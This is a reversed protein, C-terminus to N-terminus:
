RQARAPWREQLDRYIQRCIDRVSPAADPLSKTLCSEIIDLGGSKELAPNNGHTQLITKMYVAAFQRTQTNKDNLMDSLFKLTKHRLPTSALYITTSDMSKTAIIKRTSNACKLLTLLLNENTYSDLHYGICLSIDAVLALTEMALTTRLSNVQLNCQHTHSGPVVFEGRYIVYPSYLGMQWIM